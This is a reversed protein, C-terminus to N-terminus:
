LLVLSGPCDRPLDDTSISRANRNRPEPDRALESKFHRRGIAHSGSNGQHWGHFEGQCSSRVCKNNQEVSNVM